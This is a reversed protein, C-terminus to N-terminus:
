VPLKLGAWAPTLRPDFATAGSPPLRAQRNFYDDLARALNIQSTVTGDAFSQVGYGAGADLSESVRRLGSSIDARSMGGSIHRLSQAAFSGRPNGDGITPATGAEEVMSRPNLGDGVPAFSRMGPMAGAKSRWNTVLTSVPEVHGSEGKSPSIFARISHKSTRQLQGAEAFWSLGAFQNFGDSDNRRTAGKSFGFRFMGPSIEAGGDESDARKSGSVIRPVLFRRIPAMQGSKGQEVPKDLGWAKMMKYFDSNPDNRIKTGWVYGEHADMYDEPSMGYPGEISTSFVNKYQNYKGAWYEAIKESIGSLESELGFIFSARFTAYMYAALGMPRNEEYLRRMRMAVSMLDSVKFAAPVILYDKSNVFRSAEDIKGDSHLREYLNLPPSDKRNPELNQEELFDNKVPAGDLFM